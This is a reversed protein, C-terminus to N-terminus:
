ALFRLHGYYRELGPGLVMLAYMNFGIHALSGHLLMPTFLRWLEGRMISENHKAGLALPYDYDLVSQTLVQLVFVLVTLGLITFSVFRRHEPLRVQVMGLWPTQQPPQSYSNM